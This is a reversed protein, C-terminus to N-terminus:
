AGKQNEEFNCSATINGKTFLNGDSNLYAIKEGQFFFELKEENVQIKWDDMQFKRAQIEGSNEEM